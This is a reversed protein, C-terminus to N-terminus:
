SRGAQIAKWVRLPTAPMEVHRVGFDKLADVIANITVGLSPTTAGEGGPRMGLPHSTAPVESLDTTFSPLVDARPMAYDMFSASLMQGSGPEYVCDEWLAQGVGQAIGGHSQGHLILPNVARGVDDVATYRLIEVFGTEPDVEVECVGTGYPFALGKTMQDGIGGLPGQLDEPLDRMQAATASLEVIGISRDGVTFRGDAFEVSEESAQFLLAAIRKGRAIIKDAAERIVISGFRMSRGSHTGGGAVVFDTDGARMRVSDFPVGLWEAVLQAFSTEHGQGSNQTGIILDVTGDPLITLEARERPNGSAGEIYNAM